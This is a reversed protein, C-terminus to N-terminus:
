TKKQSHEHRRAERVAAVARHAAARTINDIIPVWEGADDLAGDRVAAAILKAARQVCDDAIGDHDYILEDEWPCPLPSKCVRCGSRFWDLHGAGCEPCKIEVRRRTRLPLRARTYPM